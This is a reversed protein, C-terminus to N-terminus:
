AAAGHKRNWDKIWQLHHTPNEANLPRLGMERRGQNEIRLAIREDEAPDGTPAHAAHAAEHLITSAYEKKSQGWGLPFVVFSKEALDCYGFVRGGSVTDQAARLATLHAVWKWSNIGKLVDLSAMSARIFAPGGYLRPREQEDGEVARPVISSRPGAAARLATLAAGEASLPVINVQIGAQRSSATGAPRMGALMKELVKRDSKTIFAGPRLRNLIEAETM